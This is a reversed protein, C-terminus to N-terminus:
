ASGVDVDGVFVAKGHLCQCFQEFLVDVSADQASFVEILCFALDDGFQVLVCFCLLVPLVILLQVVDVSVAGMGVGFDDAGLFAVDVGVDLSLSSDGGEGGGEGFFEGQEESM